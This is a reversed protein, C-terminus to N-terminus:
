YVYFLLIFQKSLSFVIRVQKELGVIFCPNCLLLVVDFYQWHDKAFVFYSTLKVMGICGGIHGNDDVVSSNEENILEVVRKKVLYKQSEIYSQYFCWFTFGFFADKLESWQLIYQFFYWLVLFTLFFCLTKYKWTALICRKVVANQYWCLTM